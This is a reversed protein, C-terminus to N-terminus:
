NFILLDMLFKEIESKYSDFLNTTSYTVLQTTGQDNSFYYGCYFVSLGDIIGEM